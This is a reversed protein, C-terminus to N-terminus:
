VAQPTIPFLLVPEDPEASAGPYSAGYDELVFPYAHVHDSKPLWTSYVHDYTLALDRIPSM